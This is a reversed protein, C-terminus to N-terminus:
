PTCEECCYGVQQPHWCVPRPQSCWTPDYWCSAPYGAEEKCIMNPPCLNEQGCIEGAGASSCAGCFITPFQGCHDCYDVGAEVVCTLQKDRCKTVGRAVFGPQCADPHVECADAPIDDVKGNCDNDKNDCVEPQPFVTQVCKPEKGPKCEWKGFRCPGQLDKLECSGSPCAPTCLGQECHGSCCENDVECQKGTSKCEVCTGAVCRDPACCDENTKCGSKSRPMCCRGQGRVDNRRLMRSARRVVRAAVPVGQVAGASLRVRVSLGRRRRLGEHVDRSRGGGRVEHGARVRLVAARGGRAGPQRLIRGDAGAQRVHQVTARVDVVPLVVRERVRGVSQAHSLRPEQVGGAARGWDAQVQGRGAAPGTNGRVDGRARVDRGECVSGDHFM